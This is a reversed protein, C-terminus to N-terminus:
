RNQFIRILSIKHSYVHNSNYDSMCVGFICNYDSM